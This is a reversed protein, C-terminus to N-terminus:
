LVDHPEDVVEISGNPLFKIKTIVGKHLIEVLKEQADVKCITKGASNKVKQM